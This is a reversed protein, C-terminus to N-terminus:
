SLWSSTSASSRASSSNTKRMAPRYAGCRALAHNCEVCVLVDILADNVPQSSTADVHERRLFSAQEPGNGVNLVKLERDREGPRQEGSIGVQQLDGVLPVRLTPWVLAHNEVMLTPTGDAVNHPFGVPDRV